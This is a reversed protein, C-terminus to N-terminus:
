EVVSIDKILYNNDEDVELSFKVKQGPKLSSLDVTESTQFNMRMQPWNLEMIPEHTINVMHQKMKIKNIQGIGMVTRMAQHNSEDMMPDDEDMMHEENQMHGQGNMHEGDMMHGETGDALVPASAILMAFLFATMKKM